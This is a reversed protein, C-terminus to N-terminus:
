DDQKSTSSIVLPASTFNSAHCHFVPSTPRNAPRTRTPCQVTPCQVPSMPRLIHIMNNAFFFLKLWKFCTSKIPTWIDNFTYLLGSYTMTMVSQSGSLSKVAGSVYFGQPGLLPILSLHWLLHWLCNSRSEVREGKERRCRIHKSRNPCRSLLRCGMFVATGLNGAIVHAGSAVLPQESM